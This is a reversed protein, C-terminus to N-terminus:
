QKKGKTLQQHQSKTIKEFTVQQQQTHLNTDNRVYEIDFCNFKEAAQKRNKAKVVSIDRNLVNSYETVKYLPM